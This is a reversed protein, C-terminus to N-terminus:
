IGYQNQRSRAQLVAKVQFRIFCETLRCTQQLFTFSSARFSSHLELKLHFSDFAVQVLLFFPKFVLAFPLLFSFAYSFHYGIATRSYSSSQCSTPRTASRRIPASSSCSTSSSSSSPTRSGPSRPPATCRVITTTCPRTPRRRVSPSCCSSCFPTANRSPSTCRRRAARSIRCANVTTQNMNGNGGMEKKESLLRKGILRCGSRPRTVAPHVQYIGRRDPREASLEHGGRAPGLTRDLAFDGYCLSCLCPFLFRSTFLRSYLPAM